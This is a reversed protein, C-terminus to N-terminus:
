WILLSTGWTLGAGFGSIVIKDGKKLMGKRNMEDLLIPVSAASTNGYQELNIPFKEMPVGLRKSVSSIIRENAQHLIYWDIEEILTNSKELLEGISEPVKKVAFRFVEQGNMETFPHKKEKEGEFYSNSHGDCIIAEGKSGDSGVVTHIFGEKSEEIVVAGAGDGFLVCTGRDKWNIVKSMCESGIVLAKKAMKAVIHSHAVNLAYIFGSCAANLDFCVAKKNNLLGQVCCATNPFITDPTSTAVIILDIDEPLINANDLAQKAAMYAMYSTNEEKVIRRSKIGTRSSIWEDNTDVIKSLDDNTIVTEPVCHGTGVIRSTM